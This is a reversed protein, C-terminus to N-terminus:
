YTYTDVTDGNQDKLTVTDGGNNWVAGNEDWYLEDDTDTGSGTYLTVSDGPEALETSRSRIAISYTRRSQSAPSTAFRSASTPCREDRLAAPLRGFSSTSLRTSRSCRWQATGQLASRSVFRDPSANVVWM